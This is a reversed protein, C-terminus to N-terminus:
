PRTTQGGLVAILGEPLVRRWNIPEHDGPVEVYHYAYGKLQLIDRLHRNSALLTSEGAVTFENSGVTLYFFADSRPARAVYRALWESEHDNTHRGPVWFAGSESLAKGFVDPRRIVAYAAALGGLSSGCLATRAPTPKIPYEREVWPLLEDTLFRNYTDSLYYDDSRAGGNDVFVAVTPGIRGEAYLNDLITPTPIRNLYISGDFLLLLNADRLSAGPSAYTWVRRTGDLIASAISDARVVGAAVGDRKTLWPNDPVAPMRAISGHGRAAMPDSADPYQLPNLPDATLTQRLLPPQPEGAVAPPNVSFEYLFEADLALHHSVYWVDTGALHRLRSRPDTFPAIGEPGAVLVVDKTDSAGRFVFTALVHTSDGPLSDVLPTTRSAVAVWFQAVAGTDGAVVHRQLDALLPSEPPSAITQAVTSGPCVCLLAALLRALTIQTSEHTMFTLHM